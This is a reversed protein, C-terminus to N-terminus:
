RRIACSDVHRLGLRCSLIRCCKQSIWVAGMAMGMYGQLLVSREMSLELQALSSLLM